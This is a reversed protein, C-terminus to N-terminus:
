EIAVEGFDELAARMLNRFELKDVFYPHFALYIVNGNVGPGIYKRIGVPVTTNNVTYITTAVGTRPEVNYDYFGFGRQRPGNPWCMPDFHLSPYPNAGGTNQSTVVSMRRGTDQISTNLVRDEVRRIGLGTYAWHPRVTTDTVTRYYEVPYPEQLPRGTEADEYFRMPECPNIGCILLNGGADVYSPLVNAVAPDVHYSRLITNDSGTSVDSSHVWITTSAPNMLAVGPATTGRTEFVRYNFGPESAQSGLYYDWTAREIRQSNNPFVGDEELTSPDADLVVLIYRDPPDVDRPGSFIELRAALVTSFGGIDVAQVFFTHSGAGPNWPPEPDDETPIPWETANLSYQSWQATDEVAYRYGAIQYGAPGPTAYWQFRLGQGAFLGRESEPDGTIWTGAINSTLRIRPGSLANSVNFERANQVAQLRRETAGANDIARVAFIYNNGQQTDTPPLALFVISDEETPKWVRESSYGGTQLPRYTLTDLWPILEQLTLTTPSIGTDWFYEDRTTLMYLYSVVVGDDDLGEWEFEVDPSWWQGGGPGFFIQTYPAITKANFSRFAPSRDAGDKDDVARVFFTHWQEYVSDPLPQVWDPLAADPDRDVNESASVVFLSDNGFIPGYWFTTDEWAIEYHDVYGDDDWGFWFLNVNFGTESAEPPGASIRTDPESNAFPTGVESDCGAGFGAALLIAAVGCAGYNWRRM